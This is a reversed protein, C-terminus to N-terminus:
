RQAARSYVVSQDDAEEVPLNEVHANGHIEGFSATSASHVPKEAAITAALALAGLLITAFILTKSLRSNTM